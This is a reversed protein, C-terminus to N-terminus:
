FNILDIKQPEVYQICTDTFAYPCHRLKLAKESPFEVVTLSDVVLNLHPSKEAFIQEGQADKYGSVRNGILMTRSLTEKSWNAAVVNEYLFQECHPMFFLTRRVATRKAEENEPIVSINLKELVALDRDTTVPDFAWIQLKFGSNLELILALQWQSVKSSPSGIGYCVIEEPAFEQIM